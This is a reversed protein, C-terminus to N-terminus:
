PIWVAGSYLDLICCEGNLFVDDLQDVNDAFMISLKLYDYIKRVDDLWRTDPSSEEERIHTNYTFIGRTSCEINSAIYESAIMKRLHYQLVGYAHLKSFLDAAMRPHTNFVYTSPNPKMVDCNNTVVYDYYRRVANLVPWGFDNDHYDIIIYRNM